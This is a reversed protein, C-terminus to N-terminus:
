WLLTIFCLNMTPIVLGTGSFMFCVNKSGTQIHTYEIQKLSDNTDVKIRKGKM